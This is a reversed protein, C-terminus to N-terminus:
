DTAFRLSVSPVMLHLQNITMAKFKNSDEAGLKDVESKKIKTYHKEIYNTVSRQKM